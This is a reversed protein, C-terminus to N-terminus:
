NGGGCSRRCGFYKQAKIIKQRVAPSSVKYLDDLWKCIKNTDNGFMNRAQDVYENAINQKGGKAFFILTWTLQMGDDITQDHGIPIHGIGRGAYWGGIAAAGVAGGEAVGALAEAL